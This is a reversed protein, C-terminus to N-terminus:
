VEHTRLGAPKKRSARTIPPSSKCSPSRARPTTANNGIRIASIIGLTTETTVSINIFTIPL